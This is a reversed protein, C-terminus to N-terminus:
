KVYNGVTIPTAKNSVYVGDQIMYIWYVNHLRMFTWDANSPTISADWDYANAFPKIVNTWKGNISSLVYAASGNAWSGILNFGQKLVKAPPTKLPDTDVPITAVAFDGKLKVFYADLAEVDNNYVDVQVWKQSASDFKYAIEIDDANFIGGILKTGDKPRVPVTFTAWGDYQAEVVVKAEGLVFGEEKYYVTTTNNSTDTATVKFRITDNGLFVNVDTADLYAPLESITSGVPWSCVPIWGSGVKKQLEITIENIGVNDYTYGYVVIKGDVPYFYVTDVVVEPKQTDTPPIIVVGSITEKNITYATATIKVESNQPNYYYVYKSVDTNAINVQTIKQGTTTTFYGGMNNDSLDVWITDFGKSTPNGYVDVATIKIPTMKLGNVLVSNEAELKLAKVVEPDFTITVTSVAGTKNDTVKITVPEAKEDYVYVDATATGKTITVTSVVNGDKDLLKASGTASVSLVRDETQVIPNAHQDQDVIGLTLKVKNGVTATSIEPLIEVVTQVYGAPVIALEVSGRINPYSGVTATATITVKGDSPVHTPAQYYVVAQVQGKGLTIQNNNIKNGGVPADYFTGAGASLTITTDAPASFDKGYQDKLTITVKTRMNVELTNNPADTVVDFKEPHPGMVVANLTTKALNAPTFTITFDKRDGEDAALSDYVYVDVTYKGEPITVYTVADVSEATPYFKTSTRDSSLDVRLGSAGQPVPNEYKDYVAITVKTRLGSDVLLKETGNEVVTKGATVVIKSNAGPVIKITQPEAKLITNQDVEVSIELRLDAVKQYTVGFVLQGNSTTGTAKNPNQSDQTVAGAFAIDKGDIASGDVKYVGIDVPLSVPVLNGYTDLLKVTINNDVTNYDDASITDPATVSVSKPTAEHAYLTITKDGPALGEAAAEIVYNTSDKGQTFKVYVTKTSEGEKIVIQNNTIKQTASSDLYFGYVSEAVANQSSVSNEYVGLYVTTDITAPAANNYMDKLAVTVPVVQNNYIDTVVTSTEIKSPDGPLVTYTGVGADDKSTSVSLQYTKAVTPNTANSVKITITTGANITTNGITLTITTYGSTSKGIVPSNLLDVPSDGALVEVNLATGADHGLTFYIQNGQGLQSPTTFNITYTVNTAGAKQDSLTMAVNSVQAAFVSAVPIFALMMSIACILALVRRVAKFNVKKPM